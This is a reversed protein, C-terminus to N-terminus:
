RYLSDPQTGMHTKTMSSTIAGSEKNERIRVCGRTQRFKECGNLDGCYRCNVCFMSGNDEFPQFRTPICGIVKNQKRSSM